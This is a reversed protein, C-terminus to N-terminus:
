FEKKGKIAKDTRVQMVQQEPNSQIMALLDVGGSRLYHRPSYHQDSAEGLHMAEMAIILEQLLCPMMRDNDSDSDIDIPGCEEM